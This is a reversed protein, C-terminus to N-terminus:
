RDKHILQKSIFASLTGITAGAIIAIAFGMGINLVGGGINDEPFGSLAGIIDQVVYSTLGILMLVVTIISGVLAGNVLKTVKLVACALGILFGHTAGCCLLFGVLVEKKIFFDGYSDANLIVLVPMLWIVVGAVFGSLMRVILHIIYM